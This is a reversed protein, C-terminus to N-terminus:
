WNYFNAEELEVFLKQAYRIGQERFKSDTIDIDKFAINLCQGKLIERQKDSALIKEENRASNSLANLTNNLINSIPDVKVMDVIFGKSNREKVEILDDKKLSIFVERKLLTKDVKEWDNKLSDLKFGYKSLAVVRSM